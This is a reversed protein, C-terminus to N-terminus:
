FLRAVSGAANDNKNLDDNVTARNKDAVTATLSKVGLEM